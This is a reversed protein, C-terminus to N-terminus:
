SDRSNNVYYEIADSMFKALGKKKKECMKFFVEDSLYSKGIQRYTDINCDYYYKDIHVRKEHILKQVEKDSVDRDMMSSIKDLIEDAEKRIKEWSEENYESLKINPLVGSMDQTM